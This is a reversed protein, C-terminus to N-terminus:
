VDITKQNYARRRELDAAAAFDPTQKKPASAEDPNIYRIEVAGLHVIDGHRLKSESVRRGNVKTGNRSGLDRLRWGEGYSEIVAHNRSLGDAAFQLVNDPLRGITVPSGDLQVRNTGQPSRIELFAM